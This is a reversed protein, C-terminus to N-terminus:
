LEGALREILHASEEVGLAQARIIGYRQAFVSVEVPDTIVTSIGQAETYAMTRREATELLTMPGIVGNHNWQRMPM